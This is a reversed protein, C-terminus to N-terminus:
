SLCLVEAKSSFSSASSSAAAQPTNGIKLQGKRSDPITSLPPTSVTSTPATIAIDVDETKRDSGLYLLSTGGVLILGNRLNQPLLAVAASFTEFLAAKQGAGIRAMRLNNTSLKSL